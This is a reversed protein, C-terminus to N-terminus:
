CAPQEHAEEGKEAEAGTKAPREQTPRGSVAANPPRGAPQVPDALNPTTGARLRAGPSPQRHGPGPRGAPDVRELGAARPAPPTRQGGPGAPRAAHRDGKKSPAPGTAATAPAPLTM